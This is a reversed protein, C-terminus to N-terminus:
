LPPRGTGRAADENRRHNTICVSIMCLLTPNKERRKAMLIWEYLDFRNYTPM